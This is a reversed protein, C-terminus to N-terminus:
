CQNGFQCNSMVSSLNFSLIVFLLSQSMVKCVRARRHLNETLKLFRTKVQPRQEKTASLIFPCGRYEEHHHPM